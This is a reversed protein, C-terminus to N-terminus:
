IAVSICGDYKPHLLTTAILATTFAFALSCGAMTAPVTVRAPSRTRRVSRRVSGVRRKHALHHRTKTLPLCVCVCVHVGRAWSGQRRM